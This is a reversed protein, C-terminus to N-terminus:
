GPHGQICTHGQTGTLGESSRTLHHSMGTHAQLRHLGLRAKFHTSCAHRSTHPLSHRREQSRHLPPPPRHASAGPSSGSAQRPGKWKLQTFLAGAERESAGEPNDGRLGRGSGRTQNVTHPRSTPPTRHRPTFQARLITHSRSTLCLTGPWCWGRLPLKPFELGSSHLEGLDRAPEEM